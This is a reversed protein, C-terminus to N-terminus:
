PAITRYLYALRLEGARAKAAAERGLRLTKTSSTAPFQGAIWKLTQSAWISFMPRKRVKDAARWYTVHAYVRAPELEGPPSEKLRLM